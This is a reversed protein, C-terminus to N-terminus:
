NNFHGIDIWGGFQLYFIFLGKCNMNRGDKNKYGGLHHNIDNYVTWKAQLLDMKSYDKSLLFLVIKDTKSYINTALEKLNLSM